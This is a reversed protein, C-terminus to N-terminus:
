PIHIHQQHSGCDFYLVTACILNLQNTPKSLESKWYGEHHTNELTHLYSPSGRELVYVPVLLSM